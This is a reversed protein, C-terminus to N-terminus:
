DGTDAFSGSAAAARAFCFFRRYRRARPCQARSGANQGVCDAVVVVVVAMVRRGGGIVCRGDGATARLLLLVPPPPLVLAAVLVAIVVPEPANREQARM